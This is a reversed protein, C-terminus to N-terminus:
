ETFAMGKEMDADKVFSRRKESHGTERWIKGGSRPGTLGGGGGLLREQHGCDGPIVGRQVIHKGWGGDGHYVRSRTGRQPNARGQYIGLEEPTM